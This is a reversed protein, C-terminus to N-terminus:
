EKIFYYLYLEALNKKILLETQRSVKNKVYNLIKKLDSDINTKKHSKIKLTEEKKKSSTFTQLHTKIDSDIKLKLQSILFKTSEIFQKM